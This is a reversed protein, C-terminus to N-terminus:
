FIKRGLKDRAHVPHPQHRRAFETFSLLSFDKDNNRKYPVQHSAAQIDLHANRITANYLTCVEDVFFDIGRRDQSTSKREAAFGHDEGQYGIQLLTSHDVRTPFM